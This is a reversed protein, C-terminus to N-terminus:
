SSRPKAIFDQVADRLEWAAVVTLWPSRERLHARRVAFQQEVTGQGLSSLSGIMVVLIHVDPRPAPITPLGGARCTELGDTTIIILRPGTARSARLLLDGLSTCGASLPRYQAVADELADLSAAVQTQHVRRAREHVKACESKEAESQPKFVRSAESAPSCEASSLAPWVAEYIPGASWPSDGFNFARWSRLRGALALEEVVLRVARRAESLEAPAVSNTGDDWGEGELMTRTATLSNTVEAASGSFCASSSVTLLVVLLLSLGRGCHNQLETVERKLHELLRYERALRESWGYLTGLVFLAGAIVPCIIALGGTAWAFLNAAWSGTLGRVIFVTGLLALAMPVTIYLIHLAFDRGAKPRDAYRGVVFPAFIGKLAIALVITVVVGILGAIQWSVALLLISLGGAFLMELATMCWGAVTCAYAARTHYYHARPVKTTDLPKHSFWASDIEGFEARGHEQEQDIAKSTQEAWAQANALERARETSGSHRIRAWCERLEANVTRLLSRM